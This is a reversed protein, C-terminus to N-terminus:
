PRRARPPPALSACMAKWIVSIDERIDNETLAVDQATLETLKKGIKTRPTLDEEMKAVALRAAKTKGPKLPQPTTGRVGKSRAPPARKTEAESASSTGGKADEFEDDDSSSASSFSDADDDVTVAAVGAAIQGARTAQGTASANSATSRRRAPEASGIPAGKLSTSSSRRRLSPPRGTSPSSAGRDTSAFSAARNATPTFGNGDVPVSLIRSNPSASNVPFRLDGPKVKGSSSSRCLPARTLRRLAWSRRLLVVSKSLVSTASSIDSRSFSSTDSASSSTRSSSSRFLGM